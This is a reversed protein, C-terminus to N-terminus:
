KQKRIIQLSYVGGEESSDVARTEGTDRYHVWYIPASEGPAVKAGQREQIFDSNYNDVKIFNFDDDLDGVTGYFYNGILRYDRITFDLDRYKKDFGFSIDGGDVGWDFYTYIYDFPCPHAFYDIEVGWGTRGYLHKPVMHLYTETAEASHMRGNETLKYECVSFLTGRWDGSLSLATNKDKDCATFSSLMTIAALLCGLIKKM